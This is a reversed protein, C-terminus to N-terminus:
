YRGFLETVARRDVKTLANRPIADIVIVAEPVKYDAIQRRTTNLIDPITSRDHGDALVLAAVVRQGLEEDQLGVVAVDSIAPHNRIVSEVETPSINSGGRVILDKLRGMYRLQGHARRCVLDGSHFVNNILPRVQGPGEWYGPTTTPSRVLMEGVEGPLLLQGADGVVSIEAEPVPRTYPGVEAGVITAGVDEAAAWFSLLPHGIAAEFAQEVDSPCTDGSVTCLRLSRMDRPRERQRRSMQACMFPLGFFSTCNHREIADLVEDPDFRPVLVAVAGLLLASSMYYVGSGHMLPAVVPVIDSGSVGRGEASPKLAALTRQTWVVLKSPGTTGSTALLVAPADFDPQATETQAVARGLLDAWPRARDSAQELGVVFRANPSLLQDPVSAFSSHLEAEGLYLIPKVRAIWNELEKTKYRTNLPLAIAGSRFCALYAVVAEVINFMHLAVRDGPRVGISHFARALRESASALRAASWREDGAILVTENPFDKARALLMSLPTVIHNTGEPNKM